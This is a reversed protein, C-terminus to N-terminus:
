KKKRMFLVALSISFATISLPEPVTNQEIQPGDLEYMARGCFNGYTYLQFQFAVDTTPSGGTVSFSVPTSLETTTFNTGPWDNLIDGSGTVYYTNAIRQIHWDGYYTQWYDLPGVFNYLQIFSTGDFLGFKAWATGGGGSGAGVSFKVDCEFNGSYSVTATDTYITSDLPTNIAWHYRTPNFYVNGNTFLTGDDYAEKVTSAYTLQVYLLVFLHLYLICLKKM